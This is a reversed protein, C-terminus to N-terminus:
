RDCRGARRPGLPAPPHPGPRSPTCVTLTGLWRACEGRDESGALSPGLAGGDTNFVLPFSCEEM